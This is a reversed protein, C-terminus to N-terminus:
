DAWNVKIHHRDAYVKGNSILKSYLEDFRAYYKDHIHQAGSQIEEKSAGRDYSKALQRYETKYVPLMYEHLALSTQVIDKNDTTEKFGKLKKLNGELFQIKSDIVESRKMPAYGGKNDTAKASPSELERLQGENAFGVLMNSNLVAVDFYKEPSAISCGASLLCYCLFLFPAPIWKKM